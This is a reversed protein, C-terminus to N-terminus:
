KELLSIKLLDSIQQILCDAKTDHDFNIAVTKMGVASAGILESKKHGVFVAEDPLIGAQSLAKEYMVPSPKRVGIEKSSIVCDWVRGFGYRDFWNLKYSISMATDTIIGLLFGREKLQRITEPVGEFIDVTDDDRDLATIGAELEEPSTFGYLRVLKEYYAHRKIQGSFALEKLIRSQQDFDASPHPNRKELFENFLAGRNPRYYLIDGADFFIAKIKHGARPSINQRDRALQQELIPIIDDMCPIVFDPEAGEDKEGTDFDHKIQIALLFNARRAGLIDRNIKDGIYACSSTPLNALRAAYYFIAPDPKRRGYVSSLVIPHFYDIIGYEKLNCPVQNLSQTNSICGITLGMEKIKKLVAPVEPRLERTYLRTEYLFALEEAVPSLVEPLISLEKLFFRSWIEEPKLEVNTKRNWQLYSSVGATIGDALQEDTVEPNIGVRSLTNRILGMKAIREERTFRFTDLTGGMDFFVAKLTM